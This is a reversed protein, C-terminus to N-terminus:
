HNIGARWVAGGILITVYGAFPFTRFFGFVNGCWLFVGLLFIGAGLLSLGMGKFDWGSTESDSAPRAAAARAAPEAKPRPQKVWPLVSGCARCKSAATSNKEGCASCQGYDVTIAM